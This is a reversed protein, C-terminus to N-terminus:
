LGLLNNLLNALATAARNSNLANALGCVLNGLLNGPGAQATVDLVVKDLHVVLGLVNLDLPGLELHLVPCSGTASILPLVVDQTITTVVGTVADTFTGTLTGVAAVQGNQAVFRTIDLTGAFTGTPLIASIPISVPAATSSPPAAATTSAFSLAGAVAVLATAAVLRLSHM